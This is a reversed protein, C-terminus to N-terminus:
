VLESKFNEELKPMVTPTNGHFIPFFHCSFVKNKLYHLNKRCIVPILASHKKAFSLRKSLIYVNFCYNKRSFDSLLGYFQSKQGIIYQLKVSIGKNDFIPMLASPKEM